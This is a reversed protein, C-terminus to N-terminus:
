LHAVAKYRAQATAVPLMKCVFYGFADCCHDLDNDKDPMGDRDYVQQELSEITTQCGESIFIKRRCFANNVAAIRDKVLPNTNHVRVTFGASRLMSHDSKSISSTHKNRGSADPYVVVPNRPYKENIKQIVDPTDRGQTIEDIVLWVVEGKTNKRKVFIVSAMKGVNFDQWVHITETKTPQTQRVVHLERDIDYVSGSTLNVFKGELYAQRLQIPYQSMLSDVYGEPLHPNSLTSMQILKSNQIPDKVFMNYTAKFGEPTTAIFQQNHGSEGKNPGFKPKLRCRATIKNFALDAKTIPLIDFEDIYAKLIEFGVIRDPNEMSKCIINGFGTYIIGESKNIKYKMGMEEFIESYVPYAIDRM